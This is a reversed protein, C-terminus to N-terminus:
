IEYKTAKIKTTSASHKRDTSGGRLYKLDNNFFFYTLVILRGRSEHLPLPKKLDYPCRNGEPNNWDLQDSLARYCEKINYKIKLRNMAFASFYIPTSMLDDFTLPPKEANALDNLWSQEPADDVSKRTNWEPDPTPPRAPKKFWDDKTIAEVDPQEDTNGTEDGQNLPMDTDAAEFVTEDFNSSVSHSSTSQLLVLKDKHTVTNPGVEQENKAQDDGKLEEEKKEEKAKEVNEEEETLEKMKPKKFLLARTMKKDKDDDNMAEDKDTSLWDVEHDKINKLFTEDDKSGWDDENDSAIKGKSEDPVEQSTSVRESSDGSKYKTEDPVEPIIGSGESLGRSQFQKRSKCKSAKVAKVDPDDNIINHDATFSDKTKPVNAAKTGKKAKKPITAGTAFARYTQYATSNKIADNVMVDLIMKGYVQSDENKAVFKLRGLVSDNMISHMFLRNTM